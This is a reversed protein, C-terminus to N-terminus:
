NRGAFRERSAGDGRVSASRSAQPPPTPPPGHIFFISIQLSSIRNYRKSGDRLPESLGLLPLVLIPLALNHGIRLLSGQLAKEQLAARGLFALPQQAGNADGGQNELLSPIM